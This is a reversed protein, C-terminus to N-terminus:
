LTVPYLVTKHKLKQIAHSYLPHSTMWGLNESTKQTRWATFDRMFSLVNLFRLGLFKSAYLIYFSLYM